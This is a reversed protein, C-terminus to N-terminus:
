GAHAGELRARAAASTARNGGFLDAEWSPQLAIQSTTGLPLPQQTNTRNVSASLDLKPGLAANASVSTARSQEIRSVASAVTPSVSQAANILEVLLPDNQQRWWQSLDSLRAHHPLAAADGPLPAHWQAPAPADVSAPPPTLACASLLAPLFLAMWRKM